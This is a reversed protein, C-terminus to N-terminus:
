KKRTRTSVTQTSQGVAAAFLHNPMYLHSLSHVLWMYYQYHQLQLASQCNKGWFPSKGDNCAACLRWSQRKWCTQCSCVPQNCQNSFHFFFPCGICCALCRGRLSSAATMQPSRLLALEFMMRRRRCWILAMLHTYNATHFRADFCPSYFQTLLISVNLDFIIADFLYSIYWPFALLHVNLTAMTYRLPLYFIQARPLAIQEILVRQIISINLLANKLLHSMLLLPLRRVILLNTEEASLNLM